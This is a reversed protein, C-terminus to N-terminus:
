KNANCSCQGSIDDECEGCVSNYETKFRNILALQSESGNNIFSTFAGLRSNLDCDIVHEIDCAFNNAREPDCGLIDVFFEALNKHRCDLIRAVVGGKVTLTIAKRVQYNIMGLSSLTRLAETVSPMKINLREAISKSHAHEHEHEQCLEYITEIYKQQHLSLESVLDTSKM